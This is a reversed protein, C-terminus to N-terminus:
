DIRDEDVFGFINALLGDEDEFHTLMESFGSKTYIHLHSIFYHRDTGVDRDIFLTAGQVRIPRARRGDEDYDVAWLSDESVVLVFMVFSYSDTKTLGLGESAVRVLDSSSSVAQSWKEYAERDASSWSHGKRTPQATSKGVSQNIGYPKWDAPSSKLTTWNTVGGGVEGYQCRIVSHWSEQAARPLQSIVLPSALSLSKCEVALHVQWKRKRFAKAARIDFQRFKGGLPDKYAGGHSARWQHAKLTRLTFLELDFDDVASLYDALDAETLAASNTSADHPRLPDLFQKPKEPM